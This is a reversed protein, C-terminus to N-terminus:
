AGRRGGFLELHLRHCYAFGTQKCLEVLWADRSPQLAKRSRQPMLFVREVPVKDGIASLIRRIELVDDPSAVVFKFQCSYGKAWSALIAPQIRIAEDLSPNASSHALKPSLSALDCAIGNPPQTGNTEITLHKGKARLAAALDPLAAALMPEGGTLVVFRSPFVCIQRVLEDVSCVKTLADDRAYATDCWTCRLNCGAFRVFVSPVGTLLGEGQLSYFVEVVQLSSESM